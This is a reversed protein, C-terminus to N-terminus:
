AAACAADAEAERAAAAPVANAQLGGPPQQDARGPEDARVVLDDPPTAASM